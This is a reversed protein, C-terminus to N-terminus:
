IYVCMTCVCVCVCVRVCGDVLGNASRAIREDSGNIPGGAMSVTVGPYGSGAWMPAPVSSAAAAVKRNIPQGRSGLKQGMMDKDDGHAQLWVTEWM